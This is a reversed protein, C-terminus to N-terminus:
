QIIRWAFIAIKASLTLLFVAMIYVLFSGLCTMTGVSVIANFKKIANM